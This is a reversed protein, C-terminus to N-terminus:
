VRLPLVRIAGLGRDRSRAERREFDSSAVFSRATHSRRIPQGANLACRSAGGRQPDDHDVSKCLIRLTHRSQRESIMRSEPAHLAYLKNKDKQTQSLIRWTRGILEQLAGNGTDAASDVQREVDRMVRGDRSRLTVVSEENAHM